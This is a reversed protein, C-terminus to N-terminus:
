RNKVYIEDEEDDSESFLRLRVAPFGQPVTSRKRKRIEERIFAFCGMKIVPEVSKVAVKKEPAFVINHSKITDQIVKQTVNKIEDQHKQLKKNSKRKNLMCRLMLSGMTTFLFGGFGIVTYILNNGGLQHLPVNIDIM